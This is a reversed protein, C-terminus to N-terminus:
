KKVDVLSIAQHMIERALALNTDYADVVLYCFQQSNPYLRLLHQQSPLTMVIEELHEVSQEQAAQNAQLQEVMAMWAPAADAPWLQPQSTYSALVQRSGVGVVAAMLLEPLEDLLHQLTREADPAESITATIIRHLPRRGLTPLHRLFSLNM